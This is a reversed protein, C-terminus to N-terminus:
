LRNVSCFFVLSSLETINWESLGLNSAVMGMFVWSDAGALSPNTMSTLAPWVDKREGDQVGRRKRRNGQVGGNDTILDYNKWVFYMLSDENEDKEVATVQQKSYLLCNKSTACWSGADPNCFVFAACFADQSCSANCQTINGAIESRRPLQDTKVKLNYFVLTDKERQLRPLFVIIKSTSKEEVSRRTTDLLKCGRTDSSYQVALCTDELLCSARCGAEDMNTLYRYGSFFPIFIKTVM